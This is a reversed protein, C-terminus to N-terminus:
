IIYFQILKSSQLSPKDPLISVAQDEDDRRYPMVDVFCSLVHNSCRQLCSSILARWIMNLHKLVGVSIVSRISIVWPCIFAWIVISICENTCVNETLLLQSSQACRESSPRKEWLPHHTRQIQPSEEARVREGRHSLPQEGSAPSAVSFSCQDASLFFLLFVM